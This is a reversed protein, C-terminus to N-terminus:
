VKILIVSQVFHQRDQMYIFRKKCRENKECTETKELNAVPMNLINSQPELWLISRNCTNNEGRINNSKKVTVLFGRARLCLGKELDMLDVHWLAKSLKADGARCLHQRLKTLQQIQFPCTYLHLM